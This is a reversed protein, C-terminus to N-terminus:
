SMDRKQRFKQINSELTLGDESGAVAVRKRPIVEKDDKYYWDILLEEGINFTRYKRVLELYSTM